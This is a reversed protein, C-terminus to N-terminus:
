IQIKFNLYFFVHLKISIILLYFFFEFFYKYIKYKQSKFLICFIMLIM